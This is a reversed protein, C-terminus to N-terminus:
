LLSVPYVTVENPFVTFQQYDFDYQLNQDVPKLEELGACQETDRILKLTLRRGSNILFGLM